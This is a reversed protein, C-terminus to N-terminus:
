LYGSHKCKITHYTDWLDSLAASKPVPFKALPSLYLNYVVKIVINCLIIAAVALSLTTTTIHGLLDSSMKVVISIFVLTKQICFPYAILTRAGRNTKIM